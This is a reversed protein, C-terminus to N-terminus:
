FVKKDGAAQGYRYVGTLFYGYEYNWQGPANISIGTPDPYFKM